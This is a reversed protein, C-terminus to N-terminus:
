PLSQRGCYFRQGHGGLTPPPIRLPASVIGCAELFASKSFKPNGAQFVTSLEEAVRCITSEDGGTSRANTLASAIAVYDKKTM